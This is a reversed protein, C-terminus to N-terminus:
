VFFTFGAEEAKVSGAPHGGHCRVLGRAWANHCKETSYLFCRLAAQQMKNPLRSRGLPAKPGIFHSLSLSAPNLTTM